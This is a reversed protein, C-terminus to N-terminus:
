TNAEGLARRTERTLVMEDLVKGLKNDIDIESDVKGHMKGIEVLLDEYKAQLIEYKLSLETYRLNESERSRNAERWIQDSLEKHKLENRESVKTQDKVLYMVVAILSLAFIGIGGYDALQAIDVTM